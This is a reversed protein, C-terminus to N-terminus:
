WLIAAIVLQVIHRGKIHLEVALNSNTPKWHYKEESIRWVSLNSTSLWWQMNRKVYAAHNKDLENQWPSSFCM